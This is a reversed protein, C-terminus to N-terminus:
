MDYHMSYQSTCRDLIIEFFRKVLTTLHQIDKKTGTENGLVDSSVRSRLGAAPYNGVGVLVIAGYSIHAHFWSKCIGIFRYITTVYTFNLNGFYVENSRLVTAM